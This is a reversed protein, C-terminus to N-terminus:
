GKEREGITGYITNVTLQSISSIQWCLQIYTNTAYRAPPSIFVNNKEVTLREIILASPEDEAEWHLRM